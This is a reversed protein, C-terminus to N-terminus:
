SFPAVGLLQSSPLSFSLEAILSWCTFTSAVLGSSRLKTEPVWMTSGVRQGRFELHATTLARMCVYTDLHAITLAYVRAYTDLHAITLTNM